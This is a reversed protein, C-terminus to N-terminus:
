SIGLMFIVNADHTLPETSTRQTHIFTPYLSSTWQFTTRLKIWVTRDRTTTSNKTNQIPTVRSPPQQLQRLSRKIQRLHKRHAKYDLRRRGKLIGKWRCIHKRAPRFANTSPLRHLLLSSIGPAYETLSLIYRSFYFVVSQILCFTKSLDKDRNLSIHTRWVLSRIVPQQM